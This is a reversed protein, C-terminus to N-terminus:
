SHKREDHEVEEEDMERLAIHRCSVLFVTEKHNQSKADGTIKTSKLGTLFVIVNTNFIKDM